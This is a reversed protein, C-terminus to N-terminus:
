SDVQTLVDDAYSGFLEELAPRLMIEPLGDPAEDPSSVNTVQM